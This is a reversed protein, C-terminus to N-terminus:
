ADAELRINRGFLGNPQLLLFMGLLLFTAAEQWRASLYWVVESRMIGLLVAGIVPGVFSRRGGIIMGVVALLLVSLGGHPAFGVDFASVLAAVSCFLGSLGFAVYRLRQINYGRLAMEVPNDALARFQLGLNSSWLWAYFGLLMVVTVVTATLQTRTLIIGGQYVVRDLDLQLVKPENGWILAVTQTMVIYIGLSSVLHVGSSAGKRELPGHNILECAIALAIGSLVAVALALYWSVGNQLCAWAIFPVSAYVGALAMLFVRTPLYVVTFSLALLGIMFGNILGNAVIQM